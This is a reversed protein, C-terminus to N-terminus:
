LQTSNGGAGRSKLIERVVRYEPMYEELAGSGQCRVCMWEYQVPKFAFDEEVKAGPAGCRPCKMEGIVLGVM